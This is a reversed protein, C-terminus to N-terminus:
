RRVTTRGLHILQAPLGVTGRSCQRINITAARAVTGQATHRRPSTGTSLPKIILRTRALTRSHCLIPARTRTRQIRIRTLALTRRPRGLRTVTQRQILHQPVTLTLTGNRTRARSLNLTRTRTPTATRESRGVRRTARTTENILQKTVTRLRQRTRMATHRTLRPKQRPRSPAPAIRIRLLTIQHLIIPAHPILIVTQM